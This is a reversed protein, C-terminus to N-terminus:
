LARWFFRSSCYYSLQDILSQLLIITGLHVKCSTLLLQFSESLIPFMETVPVFHPQKELILSDTSCQLSPSLRGVMEWEEEPQLKQQNCSSTNRGAAVSGSLLWAGPVRNNMWRLHRATSHHKDTHMKQPQWRALLTTETCVTAQSHIKSSVLSCASIIRFVWRVQPM